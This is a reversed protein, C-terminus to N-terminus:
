PPVIPAIKRHSAHSVATRRRARVGPPSQSSMRPARHRWTRPEDTQDPRGSRAPLAYTICAPERSSPVDIEISEDLAIEARRFSASYFFQGLALPTHTTWLAEYELVDGAHLDAVIVRKECVTGYVPFLALISPTTEVTQSPATDVKRGDPKTM